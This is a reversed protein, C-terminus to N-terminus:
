SLIDEAEKKAATEVDQQGIKIPLNYGGSVMVPDENGAPHVIGAGFDSRLDVIPFSELGREFTVPNIGSDDDSSGFELVVGSTDFRLFVERPPIFTQPSGDPAFYTERGIFYHKEGILTDSRIVFRSAPGSEADIYHWENGVALPAYRHWDLSDRVAQSFSSNPTSFVLLFIIIPRKM